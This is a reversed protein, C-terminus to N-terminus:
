PPKGSNNPLVMSSRVKIFKDFDRKFDVSSWAMVLDQPVSHYMNSKSKKDQTLKWDIEDPLMLVLVMALFSEKNM